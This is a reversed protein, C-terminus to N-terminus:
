FEGQADPGILLSQGKRVVGQKVSGSIVTGVGPVKYVKDIYMLFPKDEHKEKTPLMFLLKNVLDLGKWKCM